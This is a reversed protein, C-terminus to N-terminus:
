AYSLLSEYLCNEIELTEETVVSVGKEQRVTGRKEWSVGINRGEKECTKKELKRM